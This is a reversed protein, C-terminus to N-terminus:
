KYAHPPVTSCAMERSAFSASYTIPSETSVSFAGTDTDYGSFRVELVDADCGELFNQLRSAINVDPCDTVVFM